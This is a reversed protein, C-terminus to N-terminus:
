EAGGGRSASALVINAALMLFRAMADAKMQFWAAALYSPIAIILGTATTILAQWLGDALQSMDVGGTSGAVVFFASIMGLITGLLGLLTASKALVTLLGLRTEMRHIVDQGAAELLREDPHERKLLTTFEGLLEVSGAAALAAEGSDSAGLKPVRYNSLVLLREVIIALAAISVALLPWMMPGGLTLINM